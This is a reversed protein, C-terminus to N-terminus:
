LQVGFIHVIDGATGVLFIQSPKISVIGSHCVDYPEQTDAPDLRKGYDTTSVGAGGLFADNTNAKGPQATVDVLPLDQAETLGLAAKVSRASATLTVTYHALAPM